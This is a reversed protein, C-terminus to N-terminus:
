HPRITTSGTTSDRTSDNVEANPFAGSETAEAGPRTFRM